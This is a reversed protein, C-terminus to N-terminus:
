HNDFAPASPTMDLRTLLRTCHSSLLQGMDDSRGTMATLPDARLSVRSYLEPAINGNALCATSTIRGNAGHQDIARFQM